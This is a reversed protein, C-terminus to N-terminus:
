NDRNSKGPTVFVQSDECLLVWKVYRVTMGAIFKFSKGPARKPVAPYKLYPRRKKSFLRPRPFLSLSSTSGNHNELYRAAHHVRVSAVQYTCGPAVGKEWRVLSDPVNSAMEARISLSEHRQLLWYHRM